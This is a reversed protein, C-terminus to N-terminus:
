SSFLLLKTPSRSPLAKAKNCIPM